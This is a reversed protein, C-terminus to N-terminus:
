PQHNLMTAPRAGSKLAPDSTATSVIPAQSTQTTAPSPNSGLETKYKQFSESQELAFRLLENVVYKRDNNSWECMRDLDAAISSEINIKLMVWNIKSAGYEIKLKSM